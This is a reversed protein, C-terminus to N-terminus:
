MCNKYTPSRNIAYSLWANCYILTSPRWIPNGYLFIWLAFLHKPIRSFFDHQSTCWSICFYINHFRPFLLYIFFVVCKIKYAVVSIAIMTAEDGGNKHSGVTIDKWRQNISTPVAVSFGAMISVIVATEHSFEVTITDGETKAALWRHYMSHVSFILGILKPRPDGEWDM